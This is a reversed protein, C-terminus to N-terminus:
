FNEARFSPFFEKAAVSSTLRSISSGRWFRPFAPQSNAHKALLNAREALSSIRREAYQPGMFTILSWVHADLLAPDVMMENPMTQRTSLLPFM